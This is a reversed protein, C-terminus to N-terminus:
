DVPEGASTTEGEHNRALNAELERRRQNRTESVKRGDATRWYTWGNTTRGNAVKAAASLSQKEVGAVILHAKETVTARTSKSAGGYLVTGPPIIGDAVLDRFDIYVTSTRPATGSVPVVDHGEPVPWLRIFADVIEKTRMDIAHENWEESEHIRRNSLLVDHRKLASRKGLDGSWPGNSVTSNLRSTMLALNGFRHVHEDRDIEEQLSEVPWHKSWRRPLVHEIHMAARPVRTGTMSAKRGPGYGRLDDEYAELYMRLRKRALTRYATMGMLEARLERDGPWYNGPRDLQALYSRIRDAVEDPPVAGLETIMSAVTRGIDSSRLGLLARRLIWSEVWKIARDAVEPPVQKAEDFLWLVLPKVAEFGAEQTRYVFLTAADGIDERSGARTVWRQYQDAQRHIDDLVDAMTGTVEYDLWHKFRNFTSQISVEQGTQAVLWHNFFLSVRPVSYRGLPVERSWFKTEFLKWREQYARSVDVGEDALRQFVLNKVLDAQTLPTGRANLTEFIAQSDEDARLTIVVFEVGSMLASALAQARLQVESPDDAAVWARVQEALYQHAKVIRHDNDFEEYNLPPVALMVEQFPPGDENSHQVKLQDVGEFGLSAQNHTLSGLQNSPVLHGMTEFEAAAADMLIQITTMRQQGDILTFEQAHGMSGHQQQLVVAGLFHTATSTGSMRLETLRRIDSWLPEWQREEEWVYLRQFLPVRLYQPLSFLTLPTRVQTDM